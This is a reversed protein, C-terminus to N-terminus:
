FFFTGLQGTYVFKVASRANVIARHAKFVVGSVFFEVDAFLLPAKNGPWLQRDVMEYSYDRYRDCCDVYSNHQAIFSIDAEAYIDECLVQATGFSFSKTSFFSLRCNM